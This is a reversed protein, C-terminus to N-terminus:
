HNYENTAYLILAFMMETDKYEAVSEIKMTEDLVLLKM